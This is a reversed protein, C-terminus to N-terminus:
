IYYFKTLAFNASAKYKTVINTEKKEIVKFLIKDKKLKKDKWIQNNVVIFYMKFTLKLNNFIRIKLVNKIM